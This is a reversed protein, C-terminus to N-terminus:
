GVESKTVSRQMKGFEGPSSHHSASRGVGPERGGQGGPRTDRRAASRLAAGASGQGGAEGRPFVSIVCTCTNVCPKELTNVCVELELASMILVLVDLPESKRLQWSGRNKFLNGGMRRIFECRQNRQFYLSTFM